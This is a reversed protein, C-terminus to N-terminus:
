FLVVFIGNEIMDLEQIQEEIKKIDEQSSSKRIWDQTCVLAQVIKPTLSSRYQDLVRGGTSFTSESAVTSVPIALVDRAMKSLIPFRPSNMKWWLLIDFDEIFDENAEALYKDLESTKDEGGIELERKKYLAQMRRTMKQQPEGLSVHTPVSSQSCTSYLPPKYEDFLEYLSEKLKQMMECAKESSSMESLAFELYKLKQRPDLVCAVFMLLNMKDIDGWYKDYKEKMKIAMVNFDVNSNLQADRLLIDIESLEDFFNNSTVYSTGSIRLTVEYFHELFDKLNRVNAWDDVSPWGEGRELKARFNTDQEEFREFAREFKQATDLMLYTSNWRTCVDLCLMKKCEIKEMVVCEKFKQLRAPSQRVYRVAGRVREVSKNMEKLGEVVILNVIHAMCRMHLYKGNQVLGGRPNFKKRLYGIAVDNSSANDVTVTFLKDIGWNLLCKEIVMRISEGKHSSIPCFNLIKKNLKWDNDIFHATICLYNVRQLSTWTDTTLCVRSCSSKLLQKIKVREDLYLQYVDRTMTTRSPIHFKPCAVFMFKKFGESEVFKFPLEDIVIMQALGKRCAEQDFRWTSLHGEGGEVGKRPLVLQGQSRDVVNSPNKKCSGIHYKLLGTGNKKVDCCFEKQCYNCKAKSAGESNIIKTFHSWVESRQPTAKRKGTTMNAQSSAGVGSNESDISTPPTVSGKISTPETSM